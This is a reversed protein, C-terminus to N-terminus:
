GTHVSTIWKRYRLMQESCDSVMLVPIPAVRTLLIDDITCDGYKCLTVYLLLPYTTYLVTYPTHYDNMHLTCSTHWFESQQVLATSYKACTASGAYLTRLDPTSSVCCGVYEEVVGGGSSM